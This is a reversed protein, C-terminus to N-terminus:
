AAIISGSIRISDYTTTKKCSDPIKGFLKEISEEILTVRTSVSVTSKFGRDNIKAVHNDRYFQMIKAKAADMMAKAEDMKAKAILYVKYEAAIEDTIKVENVM